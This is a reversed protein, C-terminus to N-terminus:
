LVDKLTTSYVRVVADPSSRVIRIEIWYVYHDPDATLEFENNFAIQVGPADTTTVQALQEAPGPAPEDTSARWITATAYGNPTNDEAILQFWLFYNVNDPNVSCHIVVDGGKGDRHQVGPGFQTEVVKANKSAVPCAAALYQLSFDAAYVPPAVFALFLVILISLITKM